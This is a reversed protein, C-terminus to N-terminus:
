KKKAASRLLPDLEKKKEPDAVDAPTRGDKNKASLDAGKQVLLRVVEVCGGAAAYHLATWGDKNTADLRAGRALLLKVAEVGGRWAAFCLATGGMIGSAEEVRAGRDLLLKLSKIRNMEAAWCLLPKGDKLKANADLGEAFLATLTKVDENSIAQSARGLLRAAVSVKRGTLAAEREEYWKQLEAFRAAEAATLEVFETQYKTLTPMVRWTGAQMVVFIPDYDPVKSPSGKAELVVLVACTDKVQEELVRTTKEFGKPNTREMYKKVVKKLEPLSDKGKVKRPAPMVSLCGAEDKADLCRLFKQFADTPTPKKAEGALCLGAGMALLVAIARM